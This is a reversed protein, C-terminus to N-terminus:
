NIRSDLHINTAFKFFQTLTNLRSIGHECSHSLIHPRVPPCGFFMIGGAVSAYCGGLSFLCFSFDCMIM